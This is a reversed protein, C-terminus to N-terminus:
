GTTSGTHSINCFSGHRRRGKKIRTYILFSKELGRGNGDRTETEIKVVDVAILL